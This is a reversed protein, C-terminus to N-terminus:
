VTARSKHSAEFHLVSARMAALICVFLILAYIVPLYSGQAECRRCGGSWLYYDDTCDTCLFGGRNDACVDFQQPQQAPDSAGGFIPCNDNPCCYRTVPCRVVSSIYASYSGSFSM